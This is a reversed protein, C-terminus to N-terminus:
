REIENNSPASEQSHAHTHAVTLELEPPQVNPHLLSTQNTHCDLRLLLWLQNGSTSTTTTTTTTTATSPTRPLPSPPPLTTTIICRDDVVRGQLPPPTTQNFISASKMSRSLSLARSRCPTAPQHLYVFCVNYHHYHHLHHLLLFRTTPTRRRRRSLSLLRNSNLLYYLSPSFVVFSCAAISSAYNSCPVQRSGVM